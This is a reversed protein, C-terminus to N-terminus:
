DGVAAPLYLRYGAPSPTPGLPPPEEVGSWFGGTMSFGDGSQSAGGDIEGSTGAVRFGGGSSIGYGSSINSWLLTLGSQARLRPLALAALIASAVVVVITLRIAIRTHRRM